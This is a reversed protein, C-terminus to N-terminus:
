DVKEASLSSIRHVSGIWLVMNDLDSAGTTPKRRHHLFRPMRWMEPQPFPPLVLPRSTFSTYCLIIM